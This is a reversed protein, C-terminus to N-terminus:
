EPQLDSRLIMAMVLDESIGLEGSCSVTARKFTERTSSWEGSDKELKMRSCVGVIQLVSGPFSSAVEASAIVVQTRCLQRAPSVLSYFNVCM